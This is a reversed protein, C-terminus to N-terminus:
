FVFKKPIIKEIEESILKNSDQKSKLNVSSICIKLQEEYCLKKITEYNNFLEKSVNFNIKALSSYNNNTEKAIRNFYIFKKTIIKLKANKKYNMKYNKLKLNIIEKELEKIRIKM